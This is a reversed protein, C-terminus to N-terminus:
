RAIKATFDANAAYSEVPPQDLVIVEGRADAVCRAEALKEGTRAGHATLAITFSSARNAYVALPGPASEIKRVQTIRDPLYTQVFSKVCADLARDAGDAHTAFPLAALAVLSSVAVIKRANM